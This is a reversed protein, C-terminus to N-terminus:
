NMTHGNTWEYLDWQENAWALTKSEDLDHPRELGNEIGIM